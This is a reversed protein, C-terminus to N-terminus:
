VSKTITPVEGGRDQTRKQPSVKLVHCHCESARRDGFKQLYVGGTSNSLLEASAFCNFSGSSGWWQGM